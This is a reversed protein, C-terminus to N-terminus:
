ENVIRKILTVFNSNRNYFQNKIANFNYYKLNSFFARKEKKNNNDTVKHLIKIFNAFKKIRGVSRDYKIEFAIKKM